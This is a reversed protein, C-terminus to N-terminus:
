RPFGHARRRLLGCALSLPALSAVLHKLTHGSVIHGAAYVATDLQELVKAAAYFFIMWWLYRGLDSRSKYLIIILPILLMPLFQVIIYPRLDGRGLSQTHAWYVVSAIGTLLFPYLAKRGIAPSFYEHIVIPVLSMFAVTMPLRDWLLTQNNPDLHFYGSGFATLAVGFFIMLWAPKAAPAVVEPHQAIVRWGTVGVILFPLNSMVNLFNTIGAFPRRDAFLYYRPDQAVPGTTTVVIMAGVAVLILLLCRWDLAVYGRSGPTTM